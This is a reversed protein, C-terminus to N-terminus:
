CQRGGALCWGCKNIGDACVILRSFVFFGSIHDLKWCIVSYQGPRCVCFVPSLLTSKSGLGLLLLSLILMYFCPLFMWPFCTM